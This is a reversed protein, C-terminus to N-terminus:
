PNRRDALFGAVAALYGPALQEVRPVGEERDAIFLGHDAGPSVTFGHRPDEPLHEAFARLSARVPIVTDASGFLALVPCGINPMVVTPDFDLIGRVFDLM